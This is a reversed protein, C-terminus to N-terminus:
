NIKQKKEKTRKMKKEKKQRRRAFGVDGVVMTFLGMSRKREKKKVTRHFRKKDEEEATNKQWWFSFRIRPFFFLSHIEIIVKIVAQRARSQATPMKFAKKRERRDFSRRRSQTHKHTRNWGKKCKIKKDRTGKRGLLFSDNRNTSLREYNYKILITSSRRNFSSYCNWHTERENRKENKKERICGDVQYGNGEEEEYWMRFIYSDM